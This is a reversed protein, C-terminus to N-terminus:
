LLFLLSIVCIMSKVKGDNTIHGVFSVPCKERTAIQKLLSRDDADVLLANSEQYEAGWIELVNLTPDGLEFASVKILAGAPYCIEKLVNGVNNLFEVDTKMCWLVLIETKSHIVNTSCTVLVVIPSRCPMEIEGRACALCCVSGTYM